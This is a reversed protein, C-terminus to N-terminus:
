RTVCAENTPEHLPRERPPRPVTLGRAAEAGVVRMGTPTLTYREGARPLSGGGARLADDVSLEAHLGSGTEVRVVGAQVSVSTLVSSMGTDVTLAEIAVDRPAVIGVAPDGDCLGDEPTGNLLAEGTDLRGGIWRGRVVDFGALAATFARRPRVALDSPTGSEVVTGRNMVLCTDAWQWADSMEHTVLVATTGSGTLEDSLIARVIPASEADLAAFPEDLLLVRPQSAFARAIAVRQQQGGSLEHPRATARDVLGIRDLWQRVITQTRGRDIGRARPGFAINREISLHPFLRARQDLLAIRRSEPPRRVSGAAELTEGDVTLVGSTLPTLGALATLVTSKGAGNPGLLAVCGGADVDFRVSVDFEAREVTLDASVRATM